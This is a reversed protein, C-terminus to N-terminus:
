IEGGVRVKKGSSVSFDSCGRTKAYTESNKKILELMDEGFYHSFVQLETKGKVPVAVAGGVKCKIQPLATCEESWEPESVSSGDSWESDSEDCLDTAGASSKDSDSGPM